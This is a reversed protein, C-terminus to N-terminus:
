EEQNMAKIYEDADRVVGFEALVLRVSPKVGDARTYSIWIQHKDQIARRLEALFNKTEERIFFDPVYFPEPGGLTRLRERTGGARAEGDIPVGSAMPDRIDRPITRPSVEFEEAMQDATVARRRRRCLAVQFLRDARRM